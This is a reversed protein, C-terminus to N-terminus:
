RRAGIQRSLEADEMEAALTSAKTLDVSPIGLKKPRLRYRSRQSKASSAALGKRLVGNVVEDFSRRQKRAAERLMLEVEPDLVVSAKM